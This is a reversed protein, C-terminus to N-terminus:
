RLITCIFLAKDHREQEQRTAKPTTDHRLREALREASKLQKELSIAGREAEAVTKSKQSIQDGVDVKKKASKSSKKPTSSKGSLVVKQINATYPSICKKGLEWQM